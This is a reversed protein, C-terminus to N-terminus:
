GRGGGKWIPQLSDHMSALMEFFPIEGGAGGVGGGVRHEGIGIIKHAM